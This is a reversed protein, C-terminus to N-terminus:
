MMGPLASVGALLTSGYSTKGLVRQIWDRPVLVQVLSALVIGVIFAHWISKFYGLSFQWAAAWSPDPAAANEGSITSAGIYHDAAATFAKHFYPNWKAWFLGAAAIVLFLVGGVVWKKRHAQLNGALSTSQNM